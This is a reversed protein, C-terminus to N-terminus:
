NWTGFNVKKHFMKKRYPLWSNTIRVIEQFDQLFFVTEHPMATLLKFLSMFLFINLPSNFEQWYKSKLHGDFHFEKKFYKQSLEMM